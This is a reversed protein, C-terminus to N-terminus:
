EPSKDTIQNKTISSKIENTDSGLWGHKKMLILQFIVILLMLTLAFPYGFYWHLEPMNFPSTRPDFNMGYLGTVFSLPIFITAIITLVKMVENMRNNVQTLYLSILDSCLERGSEVLDMLRVAHDYCDRLYIITEDAILEHGDRITTNLADRLPWIVRRLTILDRKINHIDGLQQASSQALVADEIKELQDGYTELIPFYHDIIADIVAYALYDPGANRLRVGGTRIRKRVEELCDGEYEQFTIIFGPGLFISIQETVLRKFERHPMRIVAFISDAYEDIKPRQGLHIVDELALPHLNFQQAIQQLLQHNGLGIVNLWTVAFQNRLTTIEELTASKIERVQEKNYAIVELRTNNTETQNLNGISSGPTTPHRHGTALRKINHKPTQHNKHKM